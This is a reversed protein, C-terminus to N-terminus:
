RAYLGGKAPTVAELPDGFGTTRRLKVEVIVLTGDKRAIIDLEGHRTRYNQEVISYGRDELFRRAIKEGREGTSRNNLKRGRRLEPPPGPM